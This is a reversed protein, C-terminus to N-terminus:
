PASNTCHRHSQTGDPHSNQSANKLDTSENTPSSEEVTSIDAETTSPATLVLEATLMLKVARAELPPTTIALLPGTMKANEEWPETSKFLITPTRSKGAIPPSTFSAAALLHHPVGGALRPSASVSHDHFTAGPTAEQVFQVLSLLVNM